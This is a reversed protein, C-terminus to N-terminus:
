PMLKKIKNIDFGKRYLSAILKQKQENDLEEPKKTKKAIAKKLAMLEADEQNEEYVQEMVEDIAEKKAGKQLLENRIVMKSKTNMKARVYFAIVREDNLYGYQDLYEMVRSIIDEKYDAEALKRRLESEMRDSYKLIALAKQKARRLVTDNLITELHIPSIEDGEILKYAKIDKQYLLFAYEYDIYVKVKSKELEELRTIQM